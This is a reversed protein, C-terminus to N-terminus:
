QSYLKSCPFFGNQSDLYCFCAHCTQPYLYLTKLLWLEGPHLPFLEKSTTFQQVPGLKRSLWVTLALASYLTPSRPHQGLRSEVYTLTGSYHECSRQLMPQEGLASNGKNCHGTHDIHWNTPFLTSSGASPSSCAAPLWGWGWAGCLMLLATDRSIPAPWRDLCASWQSVSRLSAPCSQLPPQATSQPSLTEM